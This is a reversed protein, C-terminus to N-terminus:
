RYITVAMVVAHGWRRMFDVSRGNSHEYGVQPVLQVTKARNTLTAGVRLTRTLFPRPSTLPASEGPDSIVGYRSAVFRNHV